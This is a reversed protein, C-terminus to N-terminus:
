NNIFVKQLYEDPEYVPLGPSRGAYGALDDFNIEGSLLWLNITRMESLYQDFYKRNYIKVTVSMGKKDQYPKPEILEGHETVFTNKTSLSEQWVDYSVVAATFMQSVGRSCSWALCGFSADNKTVYKTLYGALAGASSVKKIDVPNLLKGISVEKLKETIDRMAKENRIDRAAKYDQYLRMLKEHRAVIQERPIFMDLQRSAGVLGANYQTLVWLSNFRIINIPRDLILHFHINGNKQREAVRIYQFGAGVEQRLSTLFKNLIKIAKEDACDSIFTLTLFTCQKKARKCWAFFETIKARVKAKSRVSLVHIGRKKGNVGTAVRRTAGNEGTQESHVRAIKEREGDTLEFLLPLEKQAARAILDRARKENHKKKLQQNISSGTFRPVNHITSYSVVRESSLQTYFVPKNPQTAKRLLARADKGRERKKQKEQYERQKFFQSAARSGLVPPPRRKKEEIYKERSEHALCNECRCATGNVTLFKEM